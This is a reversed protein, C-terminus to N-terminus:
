DPRRPVDVTLTWGQTPFSLYGGSGPGFRKLVTLFSLCHADVLRGIISRMLETESDPVVIQWQLFGKPGYARNWKDIM